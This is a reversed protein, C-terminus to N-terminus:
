EKLYEEISISLIIEDPEVKQEASGTVEIYRIQAIDNQADASNGSSFLAVLMLQFYIKFILSNRINRMETM